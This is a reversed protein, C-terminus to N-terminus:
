EKNRKELVKIYKEESVFSKEQQHYNSFLQEIQEARKASALFTEKMAKLVRSSIIAAKAQAKASAILEGIEKNPVDEGRRETKGKVTFLFAPAAAKYNFHLEADPFGVAVKEVAEIVELSIPVDVEKLPIALNLVVVTVENHKDTKPHCIVFPKNVEVLLNKKKFKNM